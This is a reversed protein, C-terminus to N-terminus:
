DQSVPVTDHLINGICALRKDRKELLEDAAKEADKVKEELKGKEEVEKACQDKGKSAKKKDTIAQQVKNVAKRAEDVQFKAKIWDNDLAIVEDVIKGDRFRRKESTRVAEPDGGKDARLIEIGITM